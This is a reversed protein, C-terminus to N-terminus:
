FMNNVANGVGALLALVGLGMVGLLLWRRTVSLTDTVSLRLYFVVPLVFGLLSCCTSGVFSIFPVFDAATFILVSNTLM